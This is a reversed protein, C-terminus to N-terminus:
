IMMLIVPHIMLVTTTLSPTMLPSEEINRIRIHQSEIILAPHLNIHHQEVLDTHLTHDLDAATEPILPLAETHPLGGIHHTADTIILVQTDIIYHAETPADIILDPAVETHTTATTVETDTLTHSPDLDGLGTDRRTTIDLLLGLRIDQVLTTNGTAHLHAQHCYEM